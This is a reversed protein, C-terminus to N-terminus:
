GRRLCRPKGARVRYFAFFWAWGFSRLREGTISPPALASWSGMM